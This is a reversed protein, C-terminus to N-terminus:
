NLSQRRVFPPAAKPPTPEGGAASEELSKRLSSLSLRRSARTRNRLDLVLSWRSDGSGAISGRRSRRQRPELHQFKMFQIFDAQSMEKDADIKLRFAM